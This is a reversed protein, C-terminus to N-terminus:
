IMQWSTHPCYATLHGATLIEVWKSTCIKKSPHGCVAVTRKPSKSETPTRLYINLPCRRANESAYLSNKLFLSPDRIAAATKTGSVHLIRNATDIDKGQILAPENPRLGCYLMMLIWLGYPNTECVDLLTKRENDTIARRKEDKHKPLNLHAAPNELVLTNLMAKQFLDFLYQRTRKVHTGSMGSMQNLLNQLDLPKVDRLRTAGIIPIIWRHNISKLNTISKDSVSPM